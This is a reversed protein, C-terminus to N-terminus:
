FMVKDIAFNLIGPALDVLFRGNIISGLKSRRYSDPRLVIGFTEYVVHIHTIYLVCTLFGGRREENSCSLRIDLM